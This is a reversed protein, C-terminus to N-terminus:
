RNKSKDELVEVVKYRRLYDFWVFGDKRIKCGIVKFNIINYYLKYLFYNELIRVFIFMM